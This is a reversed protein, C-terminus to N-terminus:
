PSSDNVVPQLDTRAAPVVTSTDFWQSNSLATFLTFPEGHSAAGISATRPPGALAATGGACSAEGLVRGENSM